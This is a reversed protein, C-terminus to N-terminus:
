RWNKCNFKNKKSFISNKFHWHSRSNNRNIIIEKCGLIECYFIINNLKILTNGHGGKRPIFVIDLNTLKKKARKSIQKFIKTKIKSIEKQNDPLEDLKLLNNLIKIEKNKEKEYKDPLSHAYYNIIDSIPLNRGKYKMIKTNNIYLNTIFPNIRSANFNPKELLVNAKKKLNLIKIILLLCFIIILIIKIYHKINKNKSIKIKKKLKKIKVFFIEM